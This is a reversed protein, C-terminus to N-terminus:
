MAAKLKKRPTVQIEGSLDRKASSKAAKPLFRLDTEDTKGKNFQNSMIMADLDEVDPSPSNPISVTTSGDDSWDDQMMPSERETIIIGSGKPSTSTTPAQQKQEQQQQQQQQLQLKAATL